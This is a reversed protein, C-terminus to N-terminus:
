RPPAATSREATPTQSIASLARQVSKWHKHDQESAPAPTPGYFALVNQRLPQPTDRFARKTLRDLLERYTDDALSYEGHRAPLGTDFDTNRLDFRNDAVDALATRYRGAADRFSQVFM